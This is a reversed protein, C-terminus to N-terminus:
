RGSWIKLIPLQSMSSDKKWEGNNYDEWDFHFTRPTEYIDGMMSKMAGRDEICCLVAFVREIIYRENRSFVMTFWHFFPYKDVLYSLFSSDMVSMVGFCGLWDNRLGRHFYVVDNITEKPCGVQELARLYTEEKDPEDFFHPFHWLFRVSTIEKWLHSFYDKFSPQLFLSDHMIVAKEFPRLKWFYYYALLEGRGPFESQIFWVNTLLPTEPYIQVYEPNSNDDIILVLADPYNQRICRYAEQWYHNSIESNVHRTMVFGFSAM